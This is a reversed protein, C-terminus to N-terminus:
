ERQRHNMLGEYCGEYHSSEGNPKALYLINQHGTNEDSRNTENRVVTIQVCCGNVAYEFHTNRQVSFVSNVECSKWKILVSSYEFM